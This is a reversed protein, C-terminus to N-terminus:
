DFAPDLEGLKVRLVKAIRAITDETAAHRGQELRCVHSQPLRAKDALVTQTMKRARRAERIRNGVAKRYTELKRVGEDNVTSDLDVAEGKAWTIGLLQPEIIEVLVSLIEEKEESDFTDRYMRGLDLVRQIKKQPLNLIRALAKQWEKTQPAIQLTAM